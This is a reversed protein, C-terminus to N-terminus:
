TQPEFEFDHDKLSLYTDNVELNNDFVKKPKVGEKLMTKNFTKQFKLSADFLHQSYDRLIDHYAEFFENGHDHSENTANNHCYEHVLLHVIKMPHAKLNRVELTIYTKGDTWADAVESKGLSISREFKKAENWSYQGQNLSGYVMRGIWGSIDRVAKLFIKEKKTLDKEAITESLSNISAILEQINAIDASCKGYVRMDYIARRKEWDNKGCDELMNDLEENNFKILNNIAVIFEEPTKVYFKQLNSESLVIALKHDNIREEVKKM